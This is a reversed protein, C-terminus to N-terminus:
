VSLNLDLLFCWRLLDRVRAFIADPAVSGFCRLFAHVSTRCVDMWETSSRSVSVAAALSAPLVAAWPVSWEAVRHTAPHHSCACVDILRWVHVLSAADLEPAATKAFLADACTEAKGLACSYPGLLACAAVLATSWVRTDLVAASLLSHVLTSGKRLPVNHTTLAAILACAAAAAECGRRTPRAFLTVAAREIDAGSLSKRAEDITLAQAVFHAAASAAASDSIADGATSTALQALALM